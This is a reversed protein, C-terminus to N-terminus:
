KANDHPSGFPAFEPNVRITCLKLFLYKLLMQAANHFNEGPPDFPLKPYLGSFPNMAGNILIFQLADPRYGLFIPL